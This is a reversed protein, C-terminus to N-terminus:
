ADDSGREASEQTLVARHLAFPIVHAVYRGSVENLYIGVRRGCRGCNVTEMVIPPKALLVSGAGFFPEVYHRHAPLISAIEEAVRTKGGYYPFPPKM